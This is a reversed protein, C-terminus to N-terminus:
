RLGMAELMTPNAQEPRLCSRNFWIRERHANAKGNGNGQGGYGGHAKWAVCEWNDPMVHEGEYGCLAIRLLPNDGNALAWERVDAAIDLSDKIYINADRKAETGYPPDLFIGTLGHKITPTPGCVRSWDGCCVRVRRLRDCLTRMWSQLDLQRNVGQGADGLHVLQRNVGRGAGLHVLHRWAGNGDTRTNVLRGDVVHWPGNGSCWGSGIWCCLGWVWWGAIKADHWDPDGELLGPLEDRRQLLWSHVAHLDNENVQKDAWHAVADPDHQVARWFNCNHSALGEAIFTHSTTEVAIVETEGIYEKNMLGVAHHDRGYLSVETLRTRMQAILREPRTQMLLRLTEPMGGNISLHCIQRSPRENRTTAFGLKALEKEAKDLVVGPNQAM